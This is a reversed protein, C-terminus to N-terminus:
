AQDGTSAVAAAGSGNCVGCAMDWAEEPDRFLVTGKGKCQPCAEGSRDHEIAKNPDATRWDPWTRGENKAQKAVITDVIQQPSAGARWFGDLGLIVVDAWESFDSPNQEIEVLEKRIHDVVGKTRAGPGFTRESFERQRQLHALMDFRVGEAQEATPARASAKRAAILVQRIVDRLVGSAQTYATCAATIEEESVAGADANSTQKM